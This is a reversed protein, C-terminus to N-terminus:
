PTVLHFEPRGTQRCRCEAGVFTCRAGDARWLPEADM